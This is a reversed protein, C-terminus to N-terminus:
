RTSNEKEKEGNDRFFVGYFLSSQYCNLKKRNRAVKVELNGKRYEMNRKRTEGVTSTEERKLTHAQKDLYKRDNKV